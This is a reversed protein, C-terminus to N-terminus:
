YILSPDNEAMYLTRAAINVAHDAIRELDRITLLVRSVDDLLQEIAWSDDSDAKREILDRVVTESARQCLADIDDDSGAIEWCVDVDEIAYAELSRTLLAKADRGIDDIAVEPTLDRKATLAYQALNAALDGVRELDTIIKFSAAIFRLDGAVPQQLAFLDVCQNELTLYTENIDSDGEIVELPLSEDTNVLSELGMEFRKVVLHGMELVDDRLDDLSQQYTERTM